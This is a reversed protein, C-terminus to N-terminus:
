KADMLYKDLSLWDETFQIFVHTEKKRIKTQESKKTRFQIKKGQV